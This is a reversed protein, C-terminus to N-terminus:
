FGLDESELGSTRREIGHQWREQSGRGSASLVVRVSAGAIRM